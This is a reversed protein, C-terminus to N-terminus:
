QKPIEGLIWSRRLYDSKRTLITVNTRRDVREALRISADDISGVLDNVAAKNSRAVLHGYFDMTMQISHHGLQDRVYAISEGQQLLLTAFTHRLDHFRIHRLGARRLTRRFAKYVKHDHLTGGYLSAFLPKEMVEALVKEKTRRENRPKERELELSLAIKWRLFQSLVEALRENMDIRRIKHNKPPNYVGRYFSSRVTIFGTVFDIDHPRLALLEGQRMGTTLACLLIPYWHSEYKKAAILFRRAEELSFPEYPPRARRNEIGRLAGAAPNYLVEGHEMADYYMRRLVVIVNSVTNRMLGHDSLAIIFQAVKDRTLRAFRINGLEPIIYVRLCHEYGRFTERALYVATRQIWRKAYSEVTCRATRKRRPFRVVPLNARAILRLGDM